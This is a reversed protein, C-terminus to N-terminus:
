HVSVPEFDNELAAVIAIQYNPAVCLERGDGAMLMFQMKNDVHVPRIYAINEAGLCALEMETIQWASGDTM